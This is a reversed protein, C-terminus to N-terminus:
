TCPFRGRLALVVLSAAQGDLDKPNERLYTVVANRYEGQTTGAPACVERWNNWAEYAKVTDLVGMVFGFCYGVTATGGTCMSLLDNGTRFDRAPDTQASAPAAVLAAAILLRKM